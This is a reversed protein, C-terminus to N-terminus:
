CGAICRRYAGWNPTHREYCQSVCVISEESTKLDHAKLWRVLVAPMTGISDVYVDFHPNRENASYAMIAGNVSGTELDFTLIGEETGCAHQACGNIVLHNDVLDIPAQVYLNKLLHGTQSGIRETM